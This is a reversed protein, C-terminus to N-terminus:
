NMYDSLQPTSGSVGPGLEEDDMDVLVNQLIIDLAINMSELKKELSAVKGELMEIKDAAEKDM